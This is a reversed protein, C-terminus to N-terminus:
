QHAGHAIAIVMIVFSFALGLAVMCLVSSAERDYWRPESCQHDQKYPM